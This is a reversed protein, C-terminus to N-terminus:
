PVGQTTFFIGYSHHQTCEEGLKGRVTIVVSVMELCEAMKIHQSRFTPRHQRPINISPEWTIHRNFDPKLNTYNVAKTQMFQRLILCFDEQGTNRNYM